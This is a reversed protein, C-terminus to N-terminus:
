RRKRRKRVARKWGGTAYHEQVHCGRCLTVGNSLKYRLEPNTAWPEIHHANLIVTHGLGARNTAGCDQCTFCDREFVLRRWEIAKLDHSRRGLVVGGKWNPNRAGRMDPRPKNRKAAAIKDGWSHMKGRRKGGALQRAEHATESQHYCYQSCFRQWPKSSRNPFVCGCVECHFEAPHRRPAPPPSCRPM